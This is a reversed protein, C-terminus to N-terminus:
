RGAAEDLESRWRGAAKDYHLPGIRFQSLDLAALRSIAEAPLDAEIIIKLRSGSDMLVLPARSVPSRSDGLAGAPDAAAASDGPAVAAARGARGRRVAAYREAVQKVAALMRDHADDALKEGLGSLFAQLPLAALVIWTLTTAADGRRAPIVEVGAAVAGCAALASLLLRQDDDTLLGPEGAWVRTPVAGADPYAIEEAANVAAGERDSTLM